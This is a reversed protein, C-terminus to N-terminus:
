SPNETNRVRRQKKQTIQSSTDKFKNLLAQHILNQNVHIQNSSVIRLTQKIGLM